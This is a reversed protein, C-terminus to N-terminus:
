PDFRWSLDYRDRAAQPVELASLADRLCARAADTGLGVDDERVKAIRGAADLTVRVTLEAPPSASERQCHGVHPGLLRLAALLEPADAGRLSAVTVQPLAPSHTPGFVTERVPPQPFRSPCASPAGQSDVTNLTLGLVAASQTGVAGVFACPGLEVVIDVNAVRAALTDNAAGTGRRHTLDSVDGPRLDLRYLAGDVAWDVHVCRCTADASVATPLGLRGAHAAAVTHLPHDPHQDQAPQAWAAPLFWLPM